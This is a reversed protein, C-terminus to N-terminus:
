GNPNELSETNISRYFCFDDINDSLVDSGSPALRAIIGSIYDCERNLADIKRRIKIRKKLLDKVHYYAADVPLSALDAGPTGSIKKTM